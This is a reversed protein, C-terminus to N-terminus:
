NCGLPYTVEVMAGAPPAADRDFVIANDSADYEWGSTVRVGNVDVVIRSPDAPEESLRFRRNLGFASNSLKELSAAWNPTCISEVVGGTAEALKMYRSGSSSSTPCSSLDMPGTIANISLKSKDNGKLALFYTEYFSVPQSSFDEEDSLFIIALKADERLFGGNGDNGAATRPYDQNYM